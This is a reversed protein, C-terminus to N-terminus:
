GNDIEAMLQDIRKTYEREKMLLARQELQWIEKEKKFEDKLKNIAVQKEDRAQDIKGYMWVEMAEFREYALKLNARSEELQAVVVAYEKEDITKNASFSIIEGQLYAAAEPLRDKAFDSLVASIDRKSGKGIVELLRVITPWEGKKLLELIGNEIREKTETKM